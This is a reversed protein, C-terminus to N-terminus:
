STHLVELAAGQTAGIVSARGTALLVTSIEMIYIDNNIIM